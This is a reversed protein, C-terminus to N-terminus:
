SQNPIFKRWHIGSIPVEITGAFLASVSWNGPVGNCRNIEEFRKAAGAIAKDLPETLSIRVESLHNSWPRIAIVVALPNEKISEQAQLLTEALNVADERLRGLKQSIEEILEAM